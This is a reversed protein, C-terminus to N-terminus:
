PFGSGAAKRRQPLRRCREHGIQVIFDRRLPLPDKRVVPAGNRWWITPKGSFISRVRCGNLMGAKERPIQREPALDSEEDPLVSAALRRQEFRERLAASEVGLAAVAIVM